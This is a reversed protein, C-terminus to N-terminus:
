RGLRLYIVLKIARGMVGSTLSVTLSNLKSFTLQHSNMLTVGIMDAAFALAVM